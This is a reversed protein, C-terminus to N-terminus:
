KKVFVSAQLPKFLNYADQISESHGIFVHGNPQLSNHLKQMLEIITNRQFYILVNRCLILDFKCNSVLNHDVLNYQKFEINQYIANSIKFWGNTNQQGKILYEHYM